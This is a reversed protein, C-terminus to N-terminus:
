SKPKEQSRADAVSLAAGAFGGLIAGVITGVPSFFSGITTGAALGGVTTISYRIASDSVLTAIAEPQNPKDLMASASVTFWEWAVRTTAGASRLLSYAWFPQAPVEKRDVATDDALEVPTDAADNSENPTKRGFLQKAM